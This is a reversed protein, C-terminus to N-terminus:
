DGRDMKVRLANLARHLNVKLSGKSRGTLMAADGLSKEDLMLHQVAERQRQPLEALAAGIREVKEEHEIGASLDVAEDAHSEYALAAHVERAGRRRMQRLIDIARRKVIVGLWANFSRRPDYTARARHVTLLVDQVVDDTRDPPVGQRRAISVIFSVCGRLLTEYALRDGTQAAAMLASRRADSETQRDEARQM